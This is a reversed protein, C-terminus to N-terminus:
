HLLISAEPLAVLMLFNRRLDGFKVQAYRLLALSREYLFRSTSKTFLDWIKDDCLLLRQCHMRWAFGSLCVHSYKCFRYIIEERM